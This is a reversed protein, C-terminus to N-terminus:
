PIFKIDFRGDTINVISDCSGKSVLGMSVFSYKVAKYNFIGSVIKNITDVKIIEVVGSSLVTDVRYYCDNKLDHFGTNQLTSNFNFKGISIPSKIDMFIIQHTNNNSKTAGIVFRNTYITAYLNPNPFPAYGGNLWVEGNVLCGFTNKGDQTEPPLTDGHDKTCSAANLLLFGLGLMTLILIKM